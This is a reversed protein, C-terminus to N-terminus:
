KKSGGNRKERLREIMLGYNEKRHPFTCASCDKCGNELYTYNGGCDPYDFLPCYCFLCNFDTENTNHCPFCECQTNCFYSFGKNRWEIYPAAQEKAM